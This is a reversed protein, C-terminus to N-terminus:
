CSGPTYEASGCIALLKEKQKSLRFDAQVEPDVFQDRDIKSARDTTSSYDAPRITLPGGITHYLEGMYRVTPSDALQSVSQPLAVYKASLLLRPLILHIITQQPTFM